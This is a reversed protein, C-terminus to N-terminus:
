RGREGRQPRGKKVRPPPTAAARFLACARAHAAPSPDYDYEAWDDRALDRYGEGLACLAYAQARREAGGGTTADIKSRYRSGRKSYGLVWVDFDHGIEHALVFAERDAACGAALDISRPAATYLSRGCREGERMRLEVTGSATPVQYRDVQEQFRHAEPGALQVAAAPAPGALLLVLALIAALRIM